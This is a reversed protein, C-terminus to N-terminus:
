KGVCILTDYQLAKVSEEAQQQEEQKSESVLSFTFTGAFSSTALLCASTRALAIRKLGRPLETDSITHKM